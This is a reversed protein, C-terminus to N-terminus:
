RLCEGVIIWCPFYVCRVLVVNVGSRWVNDDTLGGASLDDDRQGVGVVIDRCFDIDGGGSWRCGSM